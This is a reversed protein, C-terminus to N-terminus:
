LPGGNRPPKNSRPVGARRIYPAVLKEIRLKAAMLEAQSPVGGKLAQSFVAWERTAIDHAEPRLASLNALRNPDAKPKLHAFQLPDSHHVESQMEKASLGNAQALRDRGGGRLVNKEAATLPSAVKPAQWPERELFSLPNKPMAWPSRLARLGLAGASELGAVVAVPALAGVALWSNEIDAQRAVKGFAAQERRLEALEDASARSGAGGFYSEYRRQAEAQREEEIQTPSRLYWRRLAEGQLRAPDVQSEAM